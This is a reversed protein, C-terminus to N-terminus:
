KRFIFMAEQGLLWQCLQLYVSAQVPGASSPHHSAQSLKLHPCNESGWLGVTEKYPILQPGPSRPTLPCDQRGTSRDAGKGVILRSRNGLEGGRWSHSVLAEQERITDDQPDGTFACNRTSPLKTTEPVIDVLFMGSEKLLGM